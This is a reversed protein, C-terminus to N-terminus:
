HVLYMQKYQINHVEGLAGGGQGSLLSPLRPQWKGGYLLTLAQIQAQDATNNIIQITYGIFYLYFLVGVRTWKGRTVPM